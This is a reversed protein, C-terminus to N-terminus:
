DEESEDQYTGDEIQKLRVIDIYRDLRSLFHKHFNKEINKRLILQIIVGYLGLIGSIILMLLTMLPMEILIGIGIGLFVCILCDLIIKVFLPKPRTLKALKYRLLSERRLTQSLELEISSTAMLFPKLCKGEETRQYKKIGAKDLRVRSVPKGGSEGFVGGLAISVLSAPESIRVEGNVFNSM